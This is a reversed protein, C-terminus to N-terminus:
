LSAEALTRLTALQSAHPGADDLAKVTAEYALDFNRRGRKWDLFGSGHPPKIALFIDDNRPTTTIKRDANVVMSRTLISLASPFRFGNRKMGVFRALVGARGPLDDYKSKVRWEPPRRISLLMNPGPKLSRMTEIPANDILAGDILVEGDDRVFPPLVGPIAGSARVAQWLPGRRIIALDNVTLSTAVSFFNRPCDEILVGRYNRRLLEDFLRHDVVSYLPVTYKGMAKSRVFLDDCLDMVEEPTLGMAIAGAVASGMSTGGLMDFGFGREKLAKLVGLHATGHAGGGSFVIGLAQGTMFRAVRAMDNTAGIAVHHHTLAPRAELRALTNAIKTGADPRAIVLHLSSPQRQRWAHRERDSPAPDAANGTVIFLVDASDAVFDAWEDSAQSTAMLVLGRDETEARMVLAERDTAPAEAETLTSWGAHGFLAQAIGRVAEDALADASPVLVGVIRGSKPTFSPMAKNANAVRTALVSIIAESLEPVERAVAAYAQRSIELVRSRRSAVVSATRTGGAFFAIEGIPEGPRVEAIPKGGAVVLFRGHLVIFFSDAPAGEEVLAEGSTVNVVQGHDVLKQLRDTDVKEFLRTTNRILQFEGSDM